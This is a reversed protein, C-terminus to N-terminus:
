EIKKWVAELGGANYTSLLTSASPGWKPHYEMHPMDWGWDFGGTTFGAAKAHKHLVKWDKSPAGWSPNKGKADYFVIDVAVGYNHWSGGANVKTVISGPKTRGQAYLERQREMTRHGEFLYPNLGAAQTNALVKKVMGKVTPNLKSQGLINKPDAKALGGTTPTATGGEGSGSGEATKGDNSGTKKQEAADKSTGSRLQAVVDPGVVGDVTIKRAEQFRRVAADTMEGFYGTTPLGAGHNNLLVQMEKVLASKNGKILPPKGTLKSGNATGGKDDGKEPAAAPKNAHGTLAAATKPGVAGDVVLGHERQFKKVAATTLEGFFGTIPLDAGTKNLLQQLVKVASGRKGFSLPPDGTLTTSNADRQIQANGHAVPLKPPPGQMGKEIWERFAKGAAGATVEGGTGPTDLAQTGSTSGLAHSVEHAVLEMIDPSAGEQDAFSMRKGDTHANAGLSANDGKEGFNAQLGSLSRGFSSELAGNLGPQKFPGPRGQLQEQAMSNSRGAGAQGQSPTTASSSSSTQRRQKASM